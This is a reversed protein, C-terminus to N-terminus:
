LLEKFGYAKCIKFFKKMIIKVENVIAILRLSLDILIGEQTQLPVPVKLKLKMGLNESAGKQLAAPAAVAAVAHTRKVRSRVPHTYTM